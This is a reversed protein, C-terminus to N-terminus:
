FSYKLALQLQRMPIATNSIVGFGQHAANPPAGSFPAGALINAQPRDWTRHNLVHSVKVRLTDQVTLPLLLILFAFEKL